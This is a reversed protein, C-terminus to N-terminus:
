RSVQYGPFYFITRSGLTDTRHVQNLDRALDGNTEALSLLFAGYDRQSGTIGFCKDSYMGRGSYDTYLRESADEDIADEIADAIISYDLNRQLGM